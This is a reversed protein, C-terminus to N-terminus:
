KFMPALTMKGYDIGNMKFTFIPPLFSFENTCISQLTDALEKCTAPCTIKPVSFLM